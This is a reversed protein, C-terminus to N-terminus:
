RSRQVDINTQIGWGETNFAQSIADIASDFGLCLTKVSAAM